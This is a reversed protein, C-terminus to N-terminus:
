ASGTEWGGEMPPLSEPRPRAALMERFEYVIVGEDTVESDVRVGDDLSHLVKEARRLTWGLEAATETVTLRGGRRAALQLVPTQLESLLAARRTERDRDASRQLLFGGAAVAPALLVAGIEAVVIGAVMLITALLFLLVAWGRKISERAVTRPATPPLAPRAQPPSVRAPVRHGARGWGRGCRPCIEHERRMLYYALGGAGMVGATAMTAVVLGAVHSGRSFYPAGEGQFGCRSCMRLPVAPAGSEGARAAVRGAPAGCTDCVHRGSPIRAGCTSCYM